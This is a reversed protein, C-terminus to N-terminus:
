LNWGYHPIFILRLFYRFLTSVCLFLLKKLSTKFDVTKKIQNLFMETHIVVPVRWAEFFSPCWKTNIIPIIILLNVALIRPSSVLFFINLKKGFAFSAFLIDLFEDIFPLLKQKIFILSNIFFLDKPIILVFEYPMGILMNFIVYLFPKLRIHNKPLEM